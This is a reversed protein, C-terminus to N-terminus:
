AIKLQEKMFLPANDYIKPCIKYKYSIYLLLYNVNVGVNDVTAFYELIERRNLKKIEQLETPLLSQSFSTNSEDRKLRLFFKAVLFDVVNNKELHYLGIEEVLKFMAWDCMHLSGMVSNMSRSIEDPIVQDKNESGKYRFDHDIEHWGDSFVTRLQVEFTSDIYQPCPNEFTKGFTKGFDFILNQCEVGFYQPNPKDERSDAEKFDFRETLIKKVIPIDDSFYLIVRLGIIDQMKKHEKDYKEKKELLKKELSRKEKVRSSLQFYIGYNQLIKKVCDHLDNKLRNLIHDKYNLSNM